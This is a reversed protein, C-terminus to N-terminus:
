VGLNVSIFFWFINCRRVLNDAKVLILWQAVDPRKKGPFDYYSQRMTYLYSLVYMGDGDFDAMHFTNPALCWDDGSGPVTDSGVSLNVGIVSFLCM